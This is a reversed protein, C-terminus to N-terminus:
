LGVQKMMASTISQRVSGLEAWPDDVTAIRQPVTEITFAAPDLPADLEDWSIPTAVAAGPRARTSYPAVATAGRGNRLYDIFVKGTRKAKSLTAIYRAPEYRVLADAVAKTFPKVEDWGRQAVIPVVVHLGKGGTTKVFSRLGLTELLHRVTRAAEAVREWPLDPAPDLDFVMRDPQEIRDVRSGWIHMELAGMQLLSVLGEATQVYLYTRKGDDEEVTTRRIAESLGEAEHRQFFCPKGQGEPCRVLTLLRDAVHPLMRDAVEAYYQALALKTIGQGPYLVKDPNTLRAGAVEVKEAGGRRGPRPAKSTAAHVDKKATAGDAKKKATAGDAKKKATAGDAKKKATAGDAKGTAAGAAKGPPPLEREIGVSEPTRDERLGEFSPHRLRGDRTWASFHVEAILRPEVWHVGRMRPAGQFAPQAREIQELRRRLTVLTKSTFGTGVKGAYVLKGSTYVGVLIAGLGLRAGTPETFGVIVFEQRRGCKVKLWSDGRGSRYPADPRKAIVGEVGLKCAHQFVAAGDEEIHETYRLTGEEPVEALLAELARKRTLQTCGRLDRGDLYLLDFVFYMLRGERGDQGEGLANQLAQFDTVGDPGVIVIEGDLVADRAPLRALDDRVGAFRETWDQGRRTLLTVRGGRLKALMRYGDFKVEYLWGAGGPPGTVLTALQPEVEEPFPGKKAGALTDAFALVRRPETAAGDAKAAAPSRLGDAKAAATAGRGRRGTLTAPREEEIRRAAGREQRQGIM